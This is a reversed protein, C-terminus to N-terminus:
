NSIPPFSLLLILFAMSLITMLFCICSFLMGYLTYQLKYEVVNNNKVLSFVAYIFVLNPAVIISAFFVFYIFICYFLVFGFVLAICFYRNMFLKNQLHYLFLFPINSVLIVFYVLILEQLIKIDFNFHLLSFLIGLFSIPNLIFYILYIKINMLHM